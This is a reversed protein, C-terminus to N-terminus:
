NISKVKKQIPEPKVFVPKEGSADLGGKEYQKMVQYVSGAGTFETWPKSDNVSSVKNSVSSPM